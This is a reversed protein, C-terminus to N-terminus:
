WGRRDRYGSQTKVKRVNALAVALQQQYATNCKNAIEEDTMSYLYYAARLAVLDSLQDEIEVKSNDESVIEAPKTMCEVEYVGPKDTRLYIASGEIRYDHPSNLSANWWRVPASAFAMFRSGAYKISALDYKVWESYIDVDDESDSILEGYFSVDKILYNYDGKFDIRLKDANVTLNVYKKVEFSTLADWEFTKLEVSEEEGSENYSVAYIYAIGAGGSVAFAVSRADTANIQIDEGGKHVSIGRCRQVPTLPYNLLQIKKTVPFLRNVEFLARNAATYVGISEYGSDLERKGGLMRIQEFLEKVTM